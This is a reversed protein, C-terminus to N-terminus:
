GVAAMSTEMQYFVMDVDGPSCGAETLLVAIESRHQTSHNIIHQMMQWLPFGFESGDPAATSYYRTMDEDTLDGVFAHTQEMVEHWAHRVSALDSYDAMDFTRAYAEQAPLSGDWWTLYGRHVDLLHLLTARISGHPIPGQADFQEATLGSAAEFIKATAWEDYGYSMRMANALM